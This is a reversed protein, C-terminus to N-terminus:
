SGCRIALNLNSPHIFASPTKMWCSITQLHFRHTMVLIQQMGRTDPLVSWEVKKQSSTVLFWPHAALRDFNAVNLKALVEGTGM